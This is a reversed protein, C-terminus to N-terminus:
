NGGFPGTKDARATYEYMGDRDFQSLEIHISSWDWEVRNQVSVAGQSAIEFPKPGILGTGYKLMRVM